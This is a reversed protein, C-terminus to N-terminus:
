GAPTPCCNISLRGWVAAWCPIRRMWPMLLALFRLRPMLAARGLRHWGQLHVAGQQARDPGAPGCRFLDCGRAAAKTGVVLFTRWAQRTRNIFQHGDPNGAPFAACDGVRMVTEGADQVMVCEGETVM